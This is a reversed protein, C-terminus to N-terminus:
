WHCHDVPMLEKATRGAAIASDAMGMLAYTLGLRSYLPWDNTYLSFDFDELLRIRCSDYYIYASDAQDTLDFVQGISMYVLYDPRISLLDRLDALM